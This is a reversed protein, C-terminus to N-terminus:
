LIDGCAIDHAPPNSRQQVHPTMSRDVIWRVVIWLHFKAHSLKLGHPVIACRRGTCYPILAKAGVDVGLQTLVHAENDLTRM